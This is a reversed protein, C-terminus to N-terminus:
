SWPMNLLAILARSSATRFVRERRTKASLPAKPGFCHSWQEWENAALRSRENAIIRDLAADVEERIVQRLLALRRNKCPPNQPM